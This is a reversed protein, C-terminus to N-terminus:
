FNMSTVIEMLFYWDFFVESQLVIQALMIYELFKLFYFVFVLVTCFSIKIRFEFRFLETM